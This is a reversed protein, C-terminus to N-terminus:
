IARGAWSLIRMAAERATDGTVAAVLDIGSGGAGCVFCKWREEGRGSKYLSASPHHDDHVPCCFKKGHTDRGLAPLIVGTLSVGRAVAWIDTTTYVTM